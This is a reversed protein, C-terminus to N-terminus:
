TINVLIKISLFRDIDIVLLQDTLIAHGCFSIDRDTEQVALGQKSKFWQRQTDLLTILAIEVKFSLQAVRTLRDFREEASTDLLETAFLAQLRLQENDPLLPTIM